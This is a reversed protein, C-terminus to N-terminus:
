GKRAYLLFKAIAFVPRGRGTGEESYWIYCSAWGDVYGGGGQNKHLVGLM